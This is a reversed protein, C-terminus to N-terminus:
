RISCTRRRCLIDYRVMYCMYHRVNCIMGGHMVVAWGIVLSCYISGISNDSPRTSIEDKLDVPGLGIVKIIKM